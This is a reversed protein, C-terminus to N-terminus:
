RDRSGPASQTDFLEDGSGRARRGAVLWGPRQMSQGAIQRNEPDRYGVRVLRRPRHTQNIYSGHVTYVDFAVVDGRQAPVAVTEALDWADTPLHPTCEEGAATRRVHDLPGLRHSADLFRIEGNEPGTADLHVLTDVYKETAHAYFANDQHMPFPHGTEPPKVHMTSHHLEVNPGLLDAMAAVLNPHTVARAWAGSYYWLDHMVVLKAKKETEEDMYVNRWDGSWGPVNNAWEVMLRDMEADLEDMEAPSFVQEIRLYGHEWFSAVQEQTLFSTATQTTMTGHMSEIIITEVLPQEQPSRFASKV